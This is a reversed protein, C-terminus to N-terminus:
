TFATISVTSAVIQADWTHGAFDSRKTFLSKRIFSNGGDCGVIYDATMKEVGNPTEVTVWACDDDQGLPGTVLHRWRIEASPQRELHKLIIPTLHNLPLCVQQYEAPVLHMDLLALPSGDLKRWTLGNPEFAYEHKTVEDLVGARRLEHLAPHSYHTARPQDDLKDAAELVVVKIDQKALLLALTM